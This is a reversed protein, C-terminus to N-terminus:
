GVVTRDGHVCQSVDVCMGFLAAPRRPRCRVFRVAVLGNGDDGIGLCVLGNGGHSRHM